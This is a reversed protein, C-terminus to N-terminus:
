FKIKLQSIDEFIFIFKSVKGESVFTFDPIKKISCYFTFSVNKIESQYYETFETEFEIKVNEIENNYFKTFLDLDIYDSEFSFEREGVNLFANNIYDIETIIKPDDYFNIDYIKLNKITERNCYIYENM